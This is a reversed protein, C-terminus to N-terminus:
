SDRSPERFPLRIGVTTGRGETSAIDFRGGHLEILAKSLALGLGSGEHGRTMASEVQEFPKGLRGLAEQPIGIGTDAVTLVLDRDDIWAAVVVRGGQPTFKIANTLLNLLVQRLAREDAMFSRPADPLERLLMVGADAAGLRVTRLCLDVLAGLDVPKPVIVYKGAEIKAM